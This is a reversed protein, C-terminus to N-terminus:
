GIVPTAPLIQQLRECRGATGKGSRIHRIWNGYCYALRKAFASQDLGRLYNEAKLQGFISALQSPVHESPGYPVTYGADRTKRMMGTNSRLQGAWDYLDAFLVRHTELLRNQDFAGRLTHKGLETLRVSVIEAERQKLAVKDRIDAKNRLVETGPFVYPDSSSDSM